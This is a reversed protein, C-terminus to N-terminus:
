KKVFLFDGGEHGAFRIDGYQPTQSANLIVPRRIRRFLGTGDLVEDNSQLAELFAAAFVSHGRGGGDVVPELGGSTLVVRARKGAMRRAYQSEETEIRVGRTLTGSYCSDAVVMVHKADMARLTDTIDANSIWNSPDNLSADVPLWYGREAKEDYWGHGAYYILLNDSSDLSRRLGALSSLIQARTANRLTTVEFGYAGELLSSIENADFVATRLRDLDEYADNGIVLAHFRGIDPLPGKPRSANPPAPASRAGGGGTALQVALPALTEGAQVRAWLARTPAAGEAFGRRGLDDLLGAILPEHLTRTAPDISVFAIRRSASERLLVADQEEFARGESLRAVEKCRRRVSAAAVTPGLLEEAQRAEGVCAKWDGVAISEYAARAARIELARDRCEATVFRTREERRLMIEIRQGPRHRDLAVLVEDVSAVPSGTVRLILDGARVGSAATRPSVAAVLPPGYRANSTRSRRSSSDATSDPAPPRSDRLQWSQSGPDRASGGGKSVLEIGLSCGGATRRELTRLGSLGRKADSKLATTQLEVEPRPAKSTACASLFAIVLAAALVGVPSGLSYSRSSRTSILRRHLMYM